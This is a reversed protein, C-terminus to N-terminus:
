MLHCITGVPELLRPGPLKIELGLRLVGVLTVENSVPGVRGGPLELEAVVRGGRRARRGKVLCRRQIRESHVVLRVLCLMRQHIATMGVLPKAHLNRFELRLVMVGVMSLLLVVCLM